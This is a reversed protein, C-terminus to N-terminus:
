EDDLRELATVVDDVLDHRQEGHHDDAMEAYEDYDADLDLRDMTDEATEAVWFDRTDEDVVVVREPRLISIVDGEDTEFTDPKAVISVYEPPEIERLTNVAEPQYQGAYVLFTGTGDSVRASYYDGRDETETLTGCVFLRNAKGGSPLLLYSPAYDDDDEKFTHSSERFESAFLRKATERAHTTTSM